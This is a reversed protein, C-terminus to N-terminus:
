IVEPLLFSLYRKVNTNIIFRDMIFQDENLWFEFTKDVQTNIFAPLVTLSNHDEGYSNKFIYMYTTQIESM